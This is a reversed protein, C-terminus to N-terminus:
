SAADLVELLKECYHAAKAVDKAGGKEPADANFRALYSQASGLLYGIFQERTMWQQMADWPQIEHQTYHEGGIQRRRPLAAPSSVPDHDTAQALNTLMHTNECARAQSETDHSAGCGDCVYRLVDASQRETSKAIKPAHVVHPM